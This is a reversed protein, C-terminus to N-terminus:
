PIEIANRNCVYKLFSRSTQDLHNWAVAAGKRDKLFCSSAGIIRWANTNNGGKNAKRAKEVASEYNAHTYDSQAEELLKEQDVSDDSSSAKPSSEPTRPPSAPRPEKVGPGSDATKPKSPPAPTASSTPRPRPSGAGGGPPTGCKKAIELADLNSEDVILVLDTHRKIEECQSPGLGRAKGLHDQIYKRKIASFRERGQELYTSNEGIQQYATVADDLAEAQAAKEFRDYKDRNRKESEAKAKKERLLENQPDLQLGEDAKALAGDWDLAHLAKDCEVTLRTVQVDPAGDAKGRGNGLLKFVVIGGVLVVLAAIAGGIVLAMGGRAAKGGQVDIVQADRDFVFDEGPAIFRLRVHGLDIHDGKRLEVKGYEEGNVRVGNASQLDVIHYHGNEHVIQAHHRSISRHDLVIDNDETRGIVMVSKSLTFERGAFNSSVVAVRAPAEQPPAEAQPQLRTPAYAAAPKIATNEEAHSLAAARDDRGHAAAADQPGAGQRDESRSEREAQLALQYDGIQIRDGEGLQVRGSIRGGNVKIGTHSQLDEIYVAGNVRLLKAHRRSVNRETLRITNGEKRGITIEDRILPVVTTKGEDDEIILKYM